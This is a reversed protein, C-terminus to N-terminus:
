IGQASLLRYLYTIVVAITGGVIGNCIVSLIGALGAIFLENREIFSLIYYKIIM